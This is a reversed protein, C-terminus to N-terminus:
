EAKKGVEFFKFHVDIREVIKEPLRPYKYHILEHAQVREKFDKPLGKQIDIEPKGRKIKTETGWRFQGAVGRKLRPSYIFSPEKYRLKGKKVERLIAQEPTLGRIYTTKIGTAVKTKIVMRGMGLSFVKGPKGTTEKIVGVGKKWVSVASIDAEKGFVLGYGRGTLRARPVPSPKTIGRLGYGYLFVDKQKAFATFKGLQAKSLKFSVPMGTEKPTLVLEQKVGKGAKVIISTDFDGLVKGRSAIDFTRQTKYYSADMFPEGGVTVQQKYRTVTKATTVTLGKVDVKSVFRTKAPSFVKTDLKVPRVKGWVKGVGKTLAGMTIFSVATYVPYKVATEVTEKGFKLPAYKVGAIMAPVTVAGLIVTGRVSRGAIDLFGAGFRDKIETEKFAKQVGIFQTELKPSTIEVAKYPAYVFKGEEFKGPMAVDKFEIGPYRGKISEVQGFGKASILGTTIRQVNIEFQKKGLEFEGLKKEAELM